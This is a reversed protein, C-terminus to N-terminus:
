DVKIVKIAKISQKSNYQITEGFVKVFDNAQLKFEKSYYITIKGTGDNLVFQTSYDQRIVYDVKGELLAKEGESAELMEGVKKEQFEEKYTIIFFILGIIVIVLAVRAFLKENM